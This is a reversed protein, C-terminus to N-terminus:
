FKNIDKKHNALIFILNNIFRHEGNKNFLNILKKFQSQNPELLIKLSNLVDLLKEM